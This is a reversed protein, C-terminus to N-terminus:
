GRWCGRSGTTSGSLGAGHSVFGPAIAAEKGDDVSRSLVPGLLAMVIVRLFAATSIPPEDPSVQKGQLDVEIKCAPCAFGGKVWQRRTRNWPAYLMPLQRHCNPCDRSVQRWLFLFPVAAILGILFYVM